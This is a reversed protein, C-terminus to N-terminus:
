FIFVMQNTIQGTLLVILYEKEIGFQIVGFLVGKRRFHLISQISLCGGSPQM